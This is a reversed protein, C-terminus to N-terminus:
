TSVNSVYTKSPPNNAESPPMPAPDRAQGFIDNVMDSLYPDVYLQTGDPRSFLDREGLWWASVHGAPVARSRVRESL